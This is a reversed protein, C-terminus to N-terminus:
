RCRSRRRFASSARGASRQPTRPGISSWTSARWSDIPRPPVAGEGVLGGKLAAEARAPDHGDMYARAALYRAFAFPPDQEAVRLAQDGAFSAGKRRSWTKALATLIVPSRPAAVLSERLQREAADPEGRALELIGGLFAAFATDPYAGGRRM